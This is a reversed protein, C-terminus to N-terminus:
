SALTIEGIVGGYCVAVGAKFRVVEEVSGDANTMGDAVEKVETDGELVLKVPRDNGAIVYVKDNPMTFDLTGAKHGQAVEMCAYGQWVPLIANGNVADKMNSSYMAVDTIGQLKRLALRTGVLIPKQGNAAEVHQAVEIIAEEDFSGSAKFKAPVKEVAKVFTAQALENMKRDVAKAVEAVIKAYDVRGAAIREAYEYVKVGYDKMSVKFSEGVDFRERKLDWHSGSFEAVELRKEGEIYFINEDGLALNRVEVFQNYFADKQYDGNALVNDIIEEIIEFVEVKHKRMAKRFSKKEYESIELVEFLKERIAQERDEVSYESYEKPVRNKASDYILKGLGM